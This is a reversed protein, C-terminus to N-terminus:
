KFMIFFKLIDEYTLLNASIIVKSDETSLQLEFFYSNM